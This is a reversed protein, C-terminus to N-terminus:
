KCRLFPIGIAYSTDLVNLPICKYYRILNHLIIIILLKLCEM